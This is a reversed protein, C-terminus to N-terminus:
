AYVTQIKTGNFKEFVAELGIKGATIDLAKQIAEVDDRIKFIKKVKDVDKKKV